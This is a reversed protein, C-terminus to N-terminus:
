ARKRKNIQRKLVGSLQVVEKLAAPLNHVTNRAMLERRTICEINDLRVDTPKVFWPGIRRWAEWAHGRLRCVLRRLWRPGTM